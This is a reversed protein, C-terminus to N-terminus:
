QKGWNLTGISGAIQPGSGVNSYNTGGSANFNTQTGSGSNINTYGTEDFIHDPVSPELASIAEIADKLKEVHDETEIGCQASLIHLDDLIGKMLAEVKGGKGLTSAAKYYRELRSGDEQPVVKQFIGDLKEVKRKCTELISKAAEDDVQGHEARANAKVLISRILPLRQAVERFAALLGQQDTPADYVKETADIIAIIGSILGVVLGAAEVGSM